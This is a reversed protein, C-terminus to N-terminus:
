GDVRWVFGPGGAYIGGDANVCLGDHYSRPGTPRPRGRKQLPSHGHVLRSGGFRALTAEAVARGDEGEFGDHEGFDVLLRDLAEPDDGAVIARWRDNVEAVTEGLDLYLACDGHLFLIDGHLDLAPLRELWRRQEDSLGERDAESGGNAEHLELITEGWSTRSDPFRLAALLLVDHNGSLTRATGGAAAAERELRMALEVCGLGDPGRDVLDGLLVLTADGGSWRGAADLLGAGRLLREGTERHGHLDGLVYLGNM